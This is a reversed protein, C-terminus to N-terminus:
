GHELATATPSGAVVYGFATAAHGVPLLPRNANKEPINAVAKPLQRLLADV